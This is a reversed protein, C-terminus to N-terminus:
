GQKSSVRRCDSRRDVVVVVQEEVAIMDTVEFFAEFGRRVAQREWSERWGRRVFAIVAPENGNAKSGLELRILRESESENQCSVCVCVIHVPIREKM